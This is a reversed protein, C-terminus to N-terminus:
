RVPIYRLKTSFLYAYLVAFFQVGGVSTFVIGLVKIALRLTDLCDRDDSKCSTCEYTSNAGDM